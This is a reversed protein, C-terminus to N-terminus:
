GAQQDIWRQLRPDGLREMARLARARTGESEARRVAELLMTYARATRGQELAEEGEILFPVGPDAHVSGARPRLVAAVALGVLFGGIHAGYATSSAAGFLLPVLNDVVLYMGLVMWAPILVVDMMWPFFAVFMKVRNQPFWIAYAGLVGSIAGSAGILPIPSPGALLGYFLTAGIGALGYFLLYPISGLRAEVNDGYIWLFLMNGALHAFGGHLFLSAVLDVPSPEITRYGWTYTFLDYASIAYGGGSAQLHGFSRFYEAFLPDDLNAAQLSLPLSVLLYVIVNIAILLWNAWAFRPPNPTDGLPLIM